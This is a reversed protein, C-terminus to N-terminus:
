CNILITCQSVLKRSTVEELQDQQQLHAYFGPRPRTDDDEDRELTVSVGDERSWRVADWTSWSSLHAEPVFVIPFELGKAGHVTM